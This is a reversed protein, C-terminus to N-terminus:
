GHIQPADAKYRHEGAEIRNKSLKRAWSPIILSNEENLLNYKDQLAILDARIADDTMNKLLRANNSITKYRNGIQHHESALKQPKIFTILASLVAAGLASIAVYDNEVDNAACWSAIAACFTTGIGFVYHIIQFGESAVWHGKASYLADEEIRHAGESITSKSTM